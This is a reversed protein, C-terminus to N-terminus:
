LPMFVLMSSIILWYTSSPYKTDVEITWFYKLGKRNSLLVNDCKSNNWNNSQVLDLTDSTYEEEIDQIYKDRTTSVNWIVRRWNWTYELVWTTTYKRQYISM